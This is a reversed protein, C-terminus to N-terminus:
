FYSVPTPDQTSGLKMSIMTRFQSALRTLAPTLPMNFDGTLNVGLCAAFGRPSRWAIPCDDAFALGSLSVWADRDWIWTNRGSDDSIEIATLDRPKRYVGDSGLVTVPLTVVVAADAVVRDFEKATYDTAAHHDNLRGFMGSHVWGTLMSQLQDLAIQADAASPTENGGYVGIMRLASTGLDRCTTM